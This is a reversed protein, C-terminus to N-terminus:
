RIFVREKKYDIGPPRYPINIVNPIRAFIQYNDIPGFYRYILNPSIHYLDFGMFARLVVGAGRYTDTLSFGNGLL